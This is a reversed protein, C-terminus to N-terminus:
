LLRKLYMGMPKEIYQYVIAGAIATATLAMIGLIDANIVNLYRSSLKYFAPITFVQVLYISYSAGGLFVFIRNNFQRINVAGYVILLAPLGWIMVRNANIEYFITITLLLSGIILFYLGYKSWKGNIFLLASVMGFVFEIVIIDTVRVIVLTLLVFVSLLFSIFDNRVLLGVAFLLYFLMEYELSWGVYLLPFSKIFIQSVFLYSSIAHATTPATHRIM